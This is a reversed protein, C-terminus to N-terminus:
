LAGIRAVVAQDGPCLWVAQGGRAAPTLPHNDPHSPCPPWNTPAHGWLEEFAWEQVQEAVSAVREATAASRRVSVGTGSGDTSWLMASPWEEDGTWDDAEIRVPALAVGRLDRLVPEMAQRLVEDM